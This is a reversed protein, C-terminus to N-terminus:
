RDGGVPARFPRLSDLCQGATSGEVAFWVVASAAREWAGMGPGVRRPDDQMAALAQAATRSGVREDGSGRYAAAALALPGASWESPVLSAVAAWREAAARCPVEVVARGADALCWAFRGVLVAAAAADGPGVVAASALAASVEGWAGVIVEPPQNESYGNAYLDFSARERACLDTM